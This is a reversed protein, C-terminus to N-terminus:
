CAQELFNSELEEFYFCVPWLAAQNQMYPGQLRQLIPVVVHIFFMSLAFCKLPSCGSHIILSASMKYLNMPVFLSRM